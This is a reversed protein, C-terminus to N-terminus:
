GGFKVKYIDHALWLGIIMLAILVIALITMTNTYFQEDKEYRQMTNNIFTDMECDIDFGPCRPDCINDRVVSCLYNKAIRCDTSCSDKNEYNECVGNGCQCDIDQEPCAAECMGDKLLGCLLSPKKATEMEGEAFCNPECSSCDVEKNNCDLDCIADRKADCYNDVSGSPCDSCTISSEAITCADGFCPECINNKNCFSIEKRLYVRNQRQIEISRVRSSGSPDPISIYVTNMYAIPTKAIINRNQDRLVISDTDSYIPTDHLNDLIEETYFPNQAAIVAGPIINSVTDTGNGFILTLQLTYAQAAAPQIPQILFLSAIALLINIRIQRQTLKM